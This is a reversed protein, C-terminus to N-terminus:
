RCRLTEATGEVAWVDLSGPRVPVLVLDAAVAASRTMTDLKLPGDMVVVDSGAALARFKSLSLARNVM